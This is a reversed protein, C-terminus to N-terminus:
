CQQLDNAQRNGIQPLGVRRWTNAVTAVTFCRTTGCGCTRPSGHTSSNIVQYWKIMKLLGHSRADMAAPPSAGFFMRHMSPQWFVPECHTFLSNMNKKPQLSSANWSWLRWQSVLYKPLAWDRCIKSYRQVLFPLAMKWSSEFIRNPWFEAYEFSGPSNTHPKYRQTKEDRSFTLMSGVVWWKELIYWKGSLEALKSEKSGPVPFQIMTVQLEWMIGRSANFINFTTRDSWVFDHSIWSSFLRTSIWYTEERCGGVLWRCGVFSGQEFLVAFHAHGQVQKKWESYRILLQQHNPTIHKGLLAKCIVETLYMPALTDLGKPVWKNTHMQHEFLDHCIM